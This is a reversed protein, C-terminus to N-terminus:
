KFYLWWFYTFTTWICILHFRSKSTSPIDPCEDRSDICYGRVCGLHDQAWFTGEVCCLLTADISGDARKVCQWKFSPVSWNLCLYQLKTVNLDYVFSCILKPKLKSVNGWLLESKYKQYCNSISSSFIYDGQKAHTNIKVIIIVYRPGIFPSQVNGVQFFQNCNDDNGIYGLGSSYTCNACVVANTAGLGTCCSSKKMPVIDNCSSVRFRASIIVRKGFEVNM